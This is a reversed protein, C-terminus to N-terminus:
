QLLLASAQKDMAMVALDGLHKACKRVVDPRFKIDCGGVSGLSSVVLKHPLSWAPLYRLWASRLGNQIAEWDDGVGVHSRM